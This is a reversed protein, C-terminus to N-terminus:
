PSDVEGAAAIRLGQPTARVVILALDGFLKEGNKGLPAGLPMRVLVDGPEMVDPRRPSTSPGLDEYEFREMREFRAIPGKVTSFDRGRIRSSLTEILRRQGLSPNLEAADPVILEGFASDNRAAIAQFYTTALEFAAESAIPPELTVVGIAPARRAASPIAVQPDVLVGDPQRPTQPLESATVLPSGGCAVLM